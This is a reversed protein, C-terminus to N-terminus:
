MRLLDFAATHRLLKANFIHGVPRLREGRRKEAQGHLAAATMVVFEIREQLLLVVLEGGEEVIDVFSSQIGEERM